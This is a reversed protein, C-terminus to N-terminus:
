QWGAGGAPVLAATAALGARTGPVPTATLPHAGLTPAISRFTTSM